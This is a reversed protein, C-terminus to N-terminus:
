FASQQNKLEINAAMGICIADAADTSAELSYQEQIFDIACQKQETRKRGWILNYKEKLIRRWHSPSLCVGLMDHTYGWYLIMAQIYALKQYTSVNGMQMQIDEFAIIEFKYKKYLNDLQELFDALRKGIEQKSNIKFTGNGILKNNNFIAYGTTVAAQDLALIVAM